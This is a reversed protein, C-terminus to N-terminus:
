SFESPIGLLNPVSIDEDIQEWRIEEGDDLLKWAARQKATAKALRPFWHLPVSLERGDALAVRMSGATFSVRVARPEPDLRRALTSM